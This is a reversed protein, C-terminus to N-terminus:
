LDQEVNVFDISEITFFPFKGTLITIDDTVFKKSITQGDKSPVIILYMKKM